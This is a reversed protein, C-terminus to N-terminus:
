KLRGFYKLLSLYLVRLPKSNKFKLYLLELEKRSIWEGNPNWPRPFYFKDCKSLTWSYQPDYEFLNFLSFGAWTKNTNKDSEIFAVIFKSNIKQCFVTDNYNTFHLDGCLPCEVKDDIVSLYVIDSFIGFKGDHNKM